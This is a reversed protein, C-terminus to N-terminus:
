FLLLFSGESVSRGSQGRRGVMHPLGAFSGVRRADKTFQGIYIVTALARRANGIHSPLPFVGTAGSARNRLIVPCLPLPGTMATISMRTGSRSPPMLFLFPLPLM